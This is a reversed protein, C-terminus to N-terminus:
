TGSRRAARPRAGLQESGSPPVGFLGEAIERDTGCVGVELARILIEGDGARADNVEAVRATHAVGPNVLLARV